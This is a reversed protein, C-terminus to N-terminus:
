KEKAVIINHKIRIIKSKVTQGIKKDTIVTIIRDREIALKENKNKSLYLLKLKLSESKKFPNPLKKTKVISFDSEDFILKISCQKELDKLEKFFEDWPKQKTINRGHKYNLYNQIGVYKVSIKKAFKIIKKIEKDNYGPVWVPAIALELKPVAYEAMKLVHNLNYDTGALKSALKPDLANLSLNIRTLGAKALEDILTKTLLVGNTNISITKIQNIAKLDRILPVLDAYLLPEGHTGINIEINNIDKFKILKKLEDILYDKEIVFDAAKKSDKGEDVSCYICNLNCGTIPKIEILSTNRDVIGFVGHGILPIGSNQHIYVAPKHNLVSKLNKLGTNLIRDFRNNLKSQNMDSYLIGDKAEFEKADFEFYFYKLLNVRIKDKLQIFKLTQYELKSKM